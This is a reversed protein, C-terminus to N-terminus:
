DLIFEYSDIMMSAMVNPTIGADYHNRYPEDPLDDLHISIHKYVIKDVLSKWITFSMDRIKGM